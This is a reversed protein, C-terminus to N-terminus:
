SEWVLLDLRQLSKAIEADAASIRTRATEDGALLKGTLERKEAYLRELYKKLKLSVVFKEADERSLTADSKEAGAASFNISALFEGHAEALDPFQEV